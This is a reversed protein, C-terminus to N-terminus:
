TQCWHDVLEFTCHQRHASYTWVEFLTRCDVKPIFSNRDENLQTWNKFTKPTSCWFPCVPLWLVQLHCKYGYCWSPQYLCAHQSKYRPKVLVCMPYNAMLKTKKPLRTGGAASWGEMMLAGLGLFLVCSSCCPHTTWDIGVLQLDVLGVIGRHRHSSCSRDKFLMRCYIKPTFCNRDGCWQTPNQFTKPVGQCFSLSIILTSPPSVQVMVDLLNIFGLVSPSTAGGVTLAPIHAQTM